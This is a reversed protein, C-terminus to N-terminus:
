KISGAFIFIIATILEAMLAGAKISQMNSNRM